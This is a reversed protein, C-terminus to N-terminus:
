EEDYDIDIINSNMVDDFTLNMKIGSGIRVPAEIGRSRLDTVLADGIKSNFTKENPPPTRVSNVFESVQQPEWSKPVVMNIEKSFDIYLGSPATGVSPLQEVNIAPLSQSTNNNNM